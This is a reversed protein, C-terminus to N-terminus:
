CYKEYIEQLVQVQRISLEQKVKLRKDLSDIFTHEWESFKDQKGYLEEIMNYCVNDQNM